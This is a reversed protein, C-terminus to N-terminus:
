KMRILVNHGTLDKEEILQDKILQSLKTYFEIIDEDNVEKSSYGAKHLLDEPSLGQPYDKLLEILDEKMQITEESIKTDPDVVGTKVKVTSALIKINKIEKKETKSNKIRELLVSAPEDSPDQPVLAGKFAKNLISQTLKDTFSKAKKYREEIREAKEFLAKVRKVIEQQEEIPPVPVSISYLIELNINKQATAPAFTEIDNQMVQIFYMAFLVEFMGEEPIFGVVSDPFCAPYTLIGTDAINAAITICLTNAPFLRSQALGFESYTQTHSTIFGGSRAVDGTQIFPYEGGFLRADNRPRHKSKGRSLEGLDQLHSWVWNDPIEPLQMYDFNSAVKNAKTTKRKQNNRKKEIRKLLEEASGIDLNKKRWDKTLEGTIAQILISQRFRKLIQPIKELRVQATDVEALLKELKAVIREQENLPALPVLIEKFHELKINNINTGSALESIKNRYYKTKLFQGLYRKNISESPRLVGCFAGFAGEWDQLLQATKGVVKKSGSSMAIIIDYKQLKQRQNINKYPVYQLDNFVLNDEDINNARLIPLYGSEPYIIAEGKKYSVGRINECLEDLSTEIWNEPLNGM